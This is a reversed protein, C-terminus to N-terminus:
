GPSLGISDWFVDYIDRHIQIRLLQEVMKKTEEKSKQSEMDQGSLSRKWMRQFKQQTGTSGPGFLRSFLARIFYKFAEFKLAADENQQEQPPSSEQNQPQQSEFNKEPSLNEKRPSLSFSDSVAQLSCAESFKESMYSRPSLFQKQFNKKMYNKQMYQISQLNQNAQDKGFKLFVPDEGSDFTSEPFSNMDISVGAPTELDLSTDLDRKSITAGSSKTYAPGRSDRRNLQRQQQQPQQQQQQQQKQYRRQHQQHHYQQKQQPNQAQSSIRSGALARSKANSHTFGSRGKFPRQGQRNQLFTQKQNNKPFSQKYPSNKINRESDKWGQSRATSQSMNSSPVPNRTKQQSTPPARPRTVNSYKGVTKQAIGLTRGLNQDRGMSINSGRKLSSTRSHGSRKWFPGMGSGSGTRPGPEPECARGNSAYEGGVGSRNGSGHNSGAAESHRVFPASSSGATRGQSSLRRLTDEYNQVYKSFHQARQQARQLRELLQENLTDKDLYEVIGYIGGSSLLAQKLSDHGIFGLVFSRLKTDGLECSDMNLLEHFIIREICKLHKNTKLKRKARVELPCVEMDDVTMFIFLEYRQFDAANYMQSNDRPTNPVIPTSSPMTQHDPPRGTAESQPGSGGGWIAPPGSIAARNADMEKLRDIVMDRTVSTRMVVETLLEENSVLDYVPNKGDPLSSRKNRSRSSGFEDETAFPSDYSMVQQQRESPTAAVQIPQSTGAAENPAGPSSQSFPTDDLSATRINSVDRDKPYNDQQFSNDSKVILGSGDDENSIMIDQGSLSGYKRTEEPPTQVISLLTTSDNGCGDFQGHQEIEALLWVEECPPVPGHYTVQYPSAVEERKQGESDTVINEDIKIFTTQIKNPDGESDYDFEEYRIMRSVKVNYDYDYRGGHSSRNSPSLTDQGSPPQGSTLHDHGSSPSFRNSGEPTTLPQQDPYFNQLIGSVYSSGSPSMQLPHPKLSPSSGMSTDQSWSFRELQMADQGPINSDTSLFASAHADESFQYPTLHGASIESETIQPGKLRAKQFGTESYLDTVDPQKTSMMVPSIAQVQNPGWDSGMQSGIKSGNDFNDIADEFESSSPAHLEATHYSNKNSGSVPDMLVTHLSEMPTDSLQSGPPTQPEVIYPQTVKDPTSRRSDLRLNPVAPDEPNYRFSGVDSNEGMTYSLFNDCTTGSVFFVTTRLWVSRFSRFVQFCFPNIEIM